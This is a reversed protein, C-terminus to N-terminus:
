CAAAEQAEQAEQAEPSDKDLLRVEPNWVLFKGGADLFAREQALVERLHVYAGLVFVGPLCAQAAERSIVPIYTGPVVTGIKAPTTDTVYEIGFGGPPQRLGAARHVLNLALTLKSSAGYAAVGEGVVRCHDIARALRTLKAEVRTGFQAYTAAHTLYREAQMVEAVRTHAQHRSYFRAATVRLSGGHVPVREADIVELGHQELQAALAPLSFVSAHEDYFQDFAGAQVIADLSPDELVLVGDPALLVDVGALFDHLDAVHTLCHFACILSVNRTCAGTEHAALRCATDLGFPAVDVHLGRRAALLAVGSAPEVGLHPRDAFPLLFTGDNCGIEVVSTPGWRRRLAAALDAYYARMGQSSGTLFPYEPRFLAAPPPPALLQVLHCAPCYTYAIPFTPAPPGDAQHFGNAVPQPGHDLFPAPLPAHCGRCPPGAPGLAAPVHHYPGTYVGNSPVARAYITAM